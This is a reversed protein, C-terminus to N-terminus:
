GHCGATEATYVVSAIKWEEGTKLLSVSDVGCHTFKGDLLFEYEGWLQATRGHVLIKPPGTFRELLDNKMGSVRVVFEDSATSTPPIDNRASYFRADPLLTSRMMASDHAAIGDFLRQVVARIASEGAPQAHLLTSGLLFATVLPRVM